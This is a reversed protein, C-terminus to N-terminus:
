CTTIEIDRWSPLCGESEDSADPTTQAFRVRLEPHNELADRARHVLRDPQLDVYPQEEGLGQNQGLDNRQQDGGPSPEDGQPAMSGFADDDGLISVTMDGEAVPQSDSDSSLFPVEEGFDSGPPSLTRSENDSTQRQEGSIRDNPQTSAQSIVDRSGDRARSNSNSLQLHAQESPRMSAHRGSPPVSALRISVSPQKDPGVTMTGGAAAATAEPLGCQGAGVDQETQEPIRDLRIRRCKREPRENHDLFFCLSEIIFGQRRPIPIIEVWGTWDDVITLWYRSGDLGEDFPGAADM